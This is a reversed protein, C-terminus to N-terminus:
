LLITTVTSHISSMITFYYYSNFPFYEYYYFLLLPQIPLVVRLLLITTVTSHAINTITFIAYALNFMSESIQKENCTAM